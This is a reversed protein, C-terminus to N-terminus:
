NVKVNQTNEGGLDLKAFSSSNVEALLERTSRSQVQLHGVAGSGRHLWTFGEWRAASTAICLMKAGPQMGDCPGALTAATRTVTYLESSLM